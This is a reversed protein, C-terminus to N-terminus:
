DEVAVRNSMDDTPRQYERQSEMNLVLTSVVDKLQKVETRLSEIEHNTEQSQRREGGILMAMRQQHWAMIAVIPIMLPLGIALVPIM